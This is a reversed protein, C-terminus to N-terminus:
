TGRELAAQRDGDRAYLSRDPHPSETENSLTSRIWALQELSFLPHRNTRRLVSRNAAWRRAKAARAAASRHGNSM